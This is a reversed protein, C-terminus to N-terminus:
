GIEALKKWTKNVWWKSRKQYMTILLLIKIAERGVGLLTGVETQNRLSVCGYIKSRIAQKNRQRRMCCSSWEQHYFLSCFESLISRTEEGSSLATFIATSFTAIDTATFPPNASSTARVDM